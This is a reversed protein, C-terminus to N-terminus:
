CCPILLRTPTLGGMCYISLYNFLDLVSTMMMLLTMMM